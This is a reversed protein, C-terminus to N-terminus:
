YRCKTACNGCTDKNSLLNMYYYNVLYSFLVSDKILKYESIHGFFTQGEM